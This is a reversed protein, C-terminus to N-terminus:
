EFAFVDRLAQKLAGAVRKEGAKDAVARQNCEIELGLYSMVPLVSRLHSAFGDTNGFYPFNRRVRLDSRALMAKLLACFIIEFPRDPDHLLGIDNRRDVGKLKPVFSHVSLHLVPAHAAANVIDTQAETRFPSWYKALRWTVEGRNLQNGPVPKGDLRRVVVQKHDQSRNLDVVLRSWKGVYLPARLGKALLRAVGLAGLDFARHSALVGKSLGLDGLERPIAASAHECTVFVKVGHLWQEGKATM